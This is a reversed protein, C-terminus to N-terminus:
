NESPKEAKDITVVEMPAKRSELKLGLQQQLVTFLTPGIAFETAPKDPNASQQMSEPSWELKFSYAGPTNTMDVVPVGLIRSLTDAFRPMTTREVEMTGRRSSSKDGGESKDPHIKLGDAKALVLAFGDFLKTDRHMGLQFRETLLTQLMIMLEPDKAPGPARAEIDFRDAAAWKPGGSVQDERLHYAISVLRKLTQGQMTMYGTRSHWGSHGDEAKTPKITAAEFSPSPQTPSPQALCQGLCFVIGTAIPARM